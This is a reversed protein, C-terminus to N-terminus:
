RIAIEFSVGLQMKENTFQKPLRALNCIKTKNEPPIKTKQLLFDFNEKGEKNSFLARLKASKPMTFFVPLLFYPRFM